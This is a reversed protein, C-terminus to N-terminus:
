TRSPAVLTKSSDKGCPSVHACDEDDFVLLADALREHLRNARLPVRGDGRRAEGFRAVRESLVGDGANQEVQAEAVAVPEGEQSLHLCARMVGNGHHDRGGVAVALPGDLGHAVARELVERLGEVEREEERPPSM